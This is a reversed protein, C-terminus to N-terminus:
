DSMDTAVSEKVAKKKKKPVKEEDVEDVELQPIAEVKHKKAFDAVIKNIIKKITSKGLEQVDGNAGFLMFDGNPYDEPVMLTVANKTKGAVLKFCLNNCDDIELDQVVSNAAKVALKVAEVEEKRNPEKIKKEVEVEEVLSDLQEEEDEDEDEKKSPVV